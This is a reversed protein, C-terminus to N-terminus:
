VGGRTYDARSDALVAWNAEQGDFLYSSTGGSDTKSARQGLDNTQFTNTATSPYTIKKCKDNYDWELTTTQGGSTVSTLNGDNDYALTKSSTSLLQNNDGVTNTDTLGGQKNSARSGAEDDSESINYAYGAARWYNTQTHVIN